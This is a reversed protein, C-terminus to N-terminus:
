TSICDDVLKAYISYLDNTKEVSIHHDNDRKQHYKLKLKGTIGDYTQEINDVYKIKNNECISKLLKNFIIVNNTRVDLDFDKENSFENVVIEKEIKTADAIRHIFNKKEFISPLNIGFIILKHKYELFQKIFLEYSNILNNMLEKMTLQKNKLKKFWYGLELDVQGFKLVVYDYKKSKLINHIIQNSNTSSTRRPLGTLSAGSILNVTYNNISQNSFKFGYVHSDGICYINAM